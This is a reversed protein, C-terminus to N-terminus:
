TVVEVLEINLHIVLLQICHPILLLWCPVKVLFILQLGLSTEILATIDNVVWILAEGTFHYSM